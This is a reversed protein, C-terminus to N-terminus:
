KDLNTDELKLKDKVMFDELANRLNIRASEKTSKSTTSLNRIAEKRNKLSKVLAEYEAIQRDISSLENNLNDQEKTANETAEDYLERLKSIKELAKTVYLQNVEDSNVMLDVKYLTIITKGEKDMIFTWGNRNCRVQVTNNSKGIVGTYYLESSLYLKKIEEKAKNEAELGIIPRDMVREAYRQLCHDTIGVTVQTLDNFLESNEM